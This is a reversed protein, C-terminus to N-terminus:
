PLSLFDDQPWCGASRRGLDWLYDPRSVGGVSHRGKQGRCLTTPDLSAETRGLDNSQEWVRPMEQNTERLM